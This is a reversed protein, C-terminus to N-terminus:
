VGQLYCLMRSTGILLPLACEVTPFPQVEDPALALPMTGVDSVLSQLLENAEQPLGDADPLSQIENLGVFDRECHIGQDRLWLAATKVSGASEPWGAAILFDAIPPLPALPCLPVVFGLDM